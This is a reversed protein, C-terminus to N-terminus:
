GEAALDYFSPVLDDLAYGDASTDYSTEFSTTAGTGSVAGYDGVALSTVVSPAGLGIALGAVGATALGAVSRWGGLAAVMAVILPHRSRPRMAERQAQEGAARTAIEGEADAMIRALLDGSPVPAADRAEAFLADLTQDTLENMRNEDRDTM